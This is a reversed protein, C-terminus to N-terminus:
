WVRDRGLCFKGKWIGLGFISGLTAVIVLLWGVEGGGGGPWWLPSAGRPGWLWVEAEEGAVELKGERQGRGLAFADRRARGCVLLGRRRQRPADVERQPQELLPPAVPDEDPDAFLDYRLAPGLGGSSSVPPRRRPDVLTIEPVHRRPHGHEQPLDALEPDRDAQAAAEGPVAQRLPPGPPAPHFVIVAPVARDDVYVLAYTADFVIRLTVKLGVELWM